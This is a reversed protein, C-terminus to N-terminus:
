LRVRGPKEKEWYRVHLLNKLIKHEMGRERAAGRLFELTNEIKKSDYDGVGGRRFAVRLRDRATYRAPASYQVARLLERYLARYSQVISYRGANSLSM